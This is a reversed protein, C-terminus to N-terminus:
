APDAGTFKVTKAMQMVAVTVPQVAPRTSGETARGAVWDREGDHGGLIAMEAM